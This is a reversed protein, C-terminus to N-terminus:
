RGTLGDSSSPTFCLQLIHAPKSTHPAEYSGDPQWEVSSIRDLKARLPRPQSVAAGQSLVRQFGAQM